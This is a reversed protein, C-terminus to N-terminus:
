AVKKFANMLGSMDSIIQQAEKAARKRTKADNRLEDATFGSLRDAIRDAVENLKPDGTINMVPIKEVLDQLKNLTNATFRKEPDSMSEAFHSVVKDVTEWVEALARDIREKFQQEVESKIQDTSSKDSMKVRFDKEGESVPDIELKVYFKRRLAHPEPYDSEKFLEGLNFRAKAREPAYIEVLKDVEAFYEDRLKSHEQLFQQYVRRPMIRDGSEKWPLSYKKLHNRLQADITNIKRVADQDILHKSVKVAGSKANARKATEESAQRDLKYGAWKGVTINVLFCENTISM